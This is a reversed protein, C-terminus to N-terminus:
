FGTSVTFQPNDTRDLKGKNLPIAVSFLLPGMPSRWEFAVGATFRLAGADQCGASAGLGACYPIVPDVMPSIASYANGFDIFATTRFTEQAFPLPVILGITGDVLFNGGIADGKSDKPGLSYGKMGRVQGQVAIGGARFNEYFPLHDTGAFGDGYGVEGRLSLIFGKYIPYYYQGLYNFKYYNIREDGFGIGVKGNIFQGYGRTPFVARDFDIHRWGANLLINKFDTGNEDKFAQLEMSSGKNLTACAMKVEEASHGEPSLCIPAVAARDAESAREPIRLYTLQLGYGLSISDKESIPISYFVNVGYQDSSFVSVDDSREYDTVDAYIDFGRGIGDPTYYPNFYNATYVTHYRDMNFGLGVSSGTGLFNDQDFGGRLLFKNTASYGAALNVTASAAEVVHFDIDVQDDVGPVAKTESGVNKFYRLMNLRHESLKLKSLNIPAAEQQRMERRLVHDETKHNGKFNIRRVYIIYKPEIMFIITVQQNDDDIEPITQVSALSYGNNGLLESIRQSIQTIRKRSFIEGPPWDILAEYQARPLMLRGDFDYGKITYQKGENVRLVVYVDRKDPTISVQISEISFHVYGRDMYFSKLTQLDNDLKERSYQDGKTIFSWLHSRNLKFQRLLVRDSFAENGLIQIQRIRAKEGEAITIKVLVRNQSMASTELSVKANYNGQNYYQSQLSGRVNDLISSDYIRGEVIDVGKLAAMLAKTPIAKNGVIQLGGITAREKVRVILVGHQNWLHIDDFFGTKYLSKIVLASDKTCLQQGVQIPLYNLVTGVAIRQLGQVRIDKVTFCDEALASHVGICLLLLSVLMLKVIKMTNHQMYGDGDQLIM